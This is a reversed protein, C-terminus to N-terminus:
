GLCITSIAQGFCRALLIALCEGVVDERFSEQDLTRQQLSELGVGSARWDQQNVIPGPRHAKLPM